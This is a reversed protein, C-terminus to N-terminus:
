DSSACLSCYPGLLHAPAGPAPSMVAWWGPWTPTGCAVCAPEDTDGPRGIQVYGGCVAAPKPAQAVIYAALAAEMVATLTRHEAAAQATLATYLAPAINLSSRKM